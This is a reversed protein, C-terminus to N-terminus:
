GGEPQPRRRHERRGGPGGFFRDSRHRLRHQLREFRERQEPTLLERIREDTRQRMERLRPALDRRLAEAEHRSEALVRRLEQRQELSLQLQRELRHGMPPALFPPPGPPRELSRAYYLHAGLAGSVVGLVFLAALAVLAQWRKM